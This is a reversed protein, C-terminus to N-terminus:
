LRIIISDMSASTIFGTGGIVNTYLPKQYSFENGLESGNEEISKQYLYIEESFSYLKFVVIDPKELGVYNGTEDYIPINSRFSSIMYNIGKENLAKDPTVDAFHGSASLYKNGQYFTLEPRYYNKTSLDENFFAKIYYRDELEEYSTVISDINIKQPIFVEYCSIPQDDAVISVHYPIDDNKVKYNFKGTNGDLLQLTDVIKGNELLYGELSQPKKRTEPALPNIAYDINIKSDGNDSITGFINIGPNEFPFEIEIKDERYCSSLIVLMLISQRILFRM